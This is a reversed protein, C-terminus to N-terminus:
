FNVGPSNVSLQVRLRVRVCACVRVCGCARAVLCLLACVRARVDRATVSSISLSAEDRDRDENM